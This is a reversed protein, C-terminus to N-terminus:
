LKKRISRQISSYKNIGSSWTTKLEDGNHFGVIVSRERDDQSQYVSGFVAVIFNVDDKYRKYLMLMLRAEEMAQILAKDWECMYIDSIVGTLDLGISGGRRQRYVKGDFRFDHLSMTKVIM